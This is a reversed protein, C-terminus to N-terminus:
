VYMYKSIYLTFKFEKLIMRIYVPMKTFIFYYLLVNQPLISLLNVIM